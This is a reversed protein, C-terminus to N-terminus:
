RSPVVSAIGWATSNKITIASIAPDVPSNQEVISMTQEVQHTSKQALELSSLYALEVDADLSTLCVNLIGFPVLPADDCEFSDFDSCKCASIYTDVNTTGSGSTLSAGQMLVPQTVEFDIDFDFSIAINRESPCYAILRVIRSPTFVACFESKRLSKAPLSSSSEPASSLRRRSLIGSAAASSVLSTWISLFMWSTRIM